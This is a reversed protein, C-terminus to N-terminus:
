GSDLGVRVRPHGRGEGLAVIRCALRLAVTCDPSHVMVGDGIAKVVSCGEESALRRVRRHFAVALDAGREDGHRWTYETYGCLDAFLITQVGEAAARTPPDRTLM